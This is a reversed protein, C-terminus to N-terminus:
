EAGKFGQSVLKEVPYGMAKCKAVIQEHLAKDMEPKRSMIFLFRHDPHGVVAWSYDPALDVVWYDIKIPWIFQAKMQGDTTGDVRFIKSKVTRLEGKENKICTTVVDYYGDKNLTYHTTTERSGKDFMTPISYLSYWTGGFRKSDVYAVTKNPLTTFLTFFSILLICVAKM